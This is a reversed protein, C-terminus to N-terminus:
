QGLFHRKSSLPIAQPLPPAPLTLINSRGEGVCGFEFIYIIYKNTEELLMSSRRQQFGLIGYLSEQGHTITEDTPSQCHEEPAGLGHSLPVPVLVHAVAPDAALVSIQIHIVQPVLPHSEKRTRHCITNSGVAKM